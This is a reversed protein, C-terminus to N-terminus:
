PIITIVDTQPVSLVPEIGTPCGLNYKETLIYRTVEAVGNKLKLKDINDKLELIKKDDFLIELVRSALKSPKPEYYGVKNKVVFEMNGQEQQWIYSNLVLPKKLLLSEFVVAPGAKGVVVDTAPMIEALNVFGFVQSIAPYKKQIKKVQNYFNKDRGCVVIIKISPKDDGRVKDKARTKDDGRCRPDLTQHNVVPNGNKGWSYKDSREPASSHCTAFEECLARVIKIGQPLGNGGGAVLVIKDFKELGLSVRSASVSVASAVFAPNLLPNFIKIKDDAIGARAGFDRARASFVVYNVEKKLFWYPPVTFPDTVLCFIPIKLNLKAVIEVMVPTLFFHASVIKDFKGDIILKKIDRYFFRGFIWATTAIIPRRTYIWYLFKWVLPLYNTAVTYGGDILWGVLRNSSKIEFIEVSEGPFNQGCEAVIAKSAALHGGGCLLYFIGTKM